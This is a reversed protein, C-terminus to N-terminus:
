LIRRPTPVQRLLEDRKRQVATQERGQTHQIVTVMTLILGSAGIEFGTMWADPFGLVGGVIVEIM